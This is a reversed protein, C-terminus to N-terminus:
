KSSKGNSRMSSIGLTSTCMTGLVFGGLPMPSVPTGGIAGATAFATNAAVPLRMRLNGILGSSRLLVEAPDRPSSYALLFSAATHKLEKLRNFEAPQYPNDRYDLQDM